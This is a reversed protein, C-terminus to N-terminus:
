LSSSDSDDGAAAASLAFKGNATVRGLVAGRTLAAAGTLTVARVVRPFERAFLNDPAFVGETEFSVPM